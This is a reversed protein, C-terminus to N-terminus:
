RLIGIIGAMGGKHPHFALCIFAGAGLMHEAQDDLALRVPGSVVLCLNADVRAIQPEADISDSASELRQDGAM